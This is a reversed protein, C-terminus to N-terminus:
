SAMCLCEGVLCKILGLETGWIPPQISASVMVAGEGAMDGVTPHLSPPPYANTLYARFCVQFKVTNCASTYATNVIHLPPSFSMPPGSYYMCLDQPLDSYAPSLDELSLSHSSCPTSSPRGLFVSSTLLPCSEPGQPPRLPDPASSTHYSTHNCWISCSCFLFYSPLPRHAGPIGPLSSVPLPLSRHSSQGDSCLGRWSRSIPRTQAPPLCLCGSSKLRAQVM